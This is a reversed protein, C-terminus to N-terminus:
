FIRNRINTTGQLTHRSASGSSALCTCLRKYVARMWLVTNQKASHAMPNCKVHLFHGVRINTSWHLIHHLSSIQNAFLISLLTYAYM